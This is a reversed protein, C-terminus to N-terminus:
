IKVVDVQELMYNVVHDVVSLIAAEMASVNPNKDMTEVMNRLIEYSNTFRYKFKAVINLMHEDVKDMEDSRIDNIYSYVLNDTEETYKSSNKIHEIISTDTTITKDRVSEYAQKLMNKYVVLKNNRMTTVYLNSVSDWIKLYKDSNSVMQEVTTGPKVDNSAVYGFITDIGVDKNALKEFSQEYIVLDYKSTNFVSYSKSLSNPFLVGKELDREMNKIINSLTSAAEDRYSSAISKLESLSVGVSLDAKIVLNRYFLYNALYVDISDSFPMTLLTIGKGYNVIYNVYENVRAGVYAKLEVDTAEDGIALYEVLDVDGSTLCDLALKGSGINAKDYKLVEDRIIGSKLIPPLDYYSVNFYDSPVEAKYNDMINLLIAKMSSMETKVVNRAFGIYGAILTKLEAVYNDSYTDYESLNYTTTGRTEKYEGTSSIAIVSPISDIDTFSSFVGCNSQVATSLNSLLSGAKPVLKMNSDTFYKALNTAVNATSMEIM